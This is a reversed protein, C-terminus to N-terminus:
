HVTVHTMHPCTNIHLVCVGKSLIGPEKKRLSPKLYDKLLDYYYGVNITCGQELIDVHIVGEVDWSVTKGVKNASTLRSNKLAPTNQTSVIWVTVDAKPLLTIL